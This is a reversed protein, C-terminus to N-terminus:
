FPCVDSVDKAAAAPQATENLATPSRHDIPEVPYTHGTPSTWNAQGTTPDTRLTWRGRHKLIHHNRCPPHLNIRDTRGSRPDGQRFPRRHDLEGHDAARNCNPFPCARDRTKVFRALAASPKYASHGLDLLGGTQPDLIMRRWKGDAALTRGLPAPIPGYGALEAPNDQLGLLTPLDLTVHVATPRVKGGGQTAIAVLADARLADIPLWGPEGPKPGGTKVQQAIQDAVNFVTMVDQASAILRLEAMGDPRAWWDLTREAHAKKAREAATAPEVALVARNLCRRLQGVTQRSARPLVRDAVIRAKARSLPYTAEAIAKAHWISIEGATLAARVAPLETTLERALALKSGALQDSVHLAAGIEAHAARLALEQFGQRDSDRAAAEVTDGVAAIAPQCLAALWGNQRELAVLLDVQLYDSLTRPDIGALATIVDPGPPAILAAAIIGNPSLNEFMRALRGDAVSLLLQLCLVKVQCPPYTAVHDTLM